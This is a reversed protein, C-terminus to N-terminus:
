RRHQPVTETESSEGPTEEYLVDDSTPIVPDSSCPEDESEILHTTPNIRPPIPEVVNDTQQYYFNNYNQITSYEIELIALVPM